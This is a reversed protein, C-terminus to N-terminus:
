NDWRLHRLYGVALAAATWALMVTFGFFVQDSGVSLMKAGAQDPFYRVLGKTLGLLSLLHSGGLVMPLLVALPVVASRATWALGAAFLGMLVLYVVGGALAEPVGVDGITAGHSGLALETVLYSLLTVPVAVIGAVGAAALVKATYLRRRLPVALLSVRAMGSAYEASVVLVGFVILALQGYLIGDLGAQQPTFDVRLLRSHTEIARRASWGDLAGVLVSVAAFLVLAVLTGRIGRLKTLEARVAAITESM